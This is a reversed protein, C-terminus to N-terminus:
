VLQSGLLSCVLTLATLIVGIVAIGSGTALNPSLTNGDEILTEDTFNESRSLFRSFTEQLDKLVTARREAIDSFIDHNNKLVTQSNRIKLDIMKAMQQISDAINIVGDNLKDKLETNL